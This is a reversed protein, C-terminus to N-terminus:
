PRRRRPRGGAEYEGSDEERDAAPGSQLDARRPNLADTGGRSSGRRGIPARRRPVAPLAPAAVVAASARAHGRRTGGLLPQRCVAALLRVARGVSARSGRGADRRLGNGERMTLIGKDGSWSMGPVVLMQLYYLPNLPNPELFVIRGGPRALDRMARLCGGLDHLHHLTFFGIVADFRGKLEDPPDLVDACHLPIGYQGGDFERFRALLSETLDLGEVVLGHDALAFTYRGMGCGVDLVREGPALGAFAILRDVQRRIYTSDSPRMAHKGAHEFYEIQARNHHEISREEGSM